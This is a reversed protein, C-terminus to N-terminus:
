NGCSGCGSTIFDRVKYATAGITEVARAVYSSGTVRTAQWEAQNALVTVTGKNTTITLTAKGEAWVAPTHKSPDVKETYLASGITLQMLNNVIQINQLNDITTELIKM